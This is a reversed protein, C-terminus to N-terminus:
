GQARCMNVFLVFESGQAAALEQAKGVVFYNTGPTTGIPALKGTVANIMVLADRVIAADAVAKTEGFQLISVPDGANVAQLTVGAAQQNAGTPLKVSSATAGAIVAVGAPLDTDAIWSRAIRVGELPGM